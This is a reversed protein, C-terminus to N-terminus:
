DYHGEDINKIETEHIHSCIAECMESELQKELGEVPFKNKYCEYAFEVMNKFARPQIQKGEKYYEKFKLMAPFYKERYFKPDNNMFFVLDDKLDYGLEKKGPEPADLM